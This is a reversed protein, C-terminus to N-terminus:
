SAQEVHFVASGSGFLSQRDQNLRFVLLPLPVPLSTHTQMGLDIVPPSNRQQLACLQPFHPNPNTVISSPLFFMDKQTIAPEESFVELRVDGTRPLAKVSETADAVMARYTALVRTRAESLKQLEGSMDRNRWNGEVRVNYKHQAARLAQHAKQIKQNYHHIKHDGALLKRRRAAVKRQLNRFANDSIHSGRYGPFIGYNEQVRMTRQKFSDFALGKQVGGLLTLHVGERNVDRHVAEILNTTSDGAQWVALPIKSKAHCIGAWAFRCTHKDRVWDQGAKGGLTKIQRLTGEWNPHSLCWLQRMLVKVTEPVTSSRINRLYHNSCLRFIRELHEYPGLTQVTRWPEHLDARIPMAAAVAQLWLGLGKAQGCHQDAAWQLIGTHDHPHQAHLHRIKLCRGTDQEVISAILEFILKHVEACQSNVFVRCFSWVRKFSIDTQVFRGSTHLRESAAPSMCVVIRLDDSTCLVTDDEEHHQLTRADISVMKRIYQEGFSLNLAQLRQLELVANWGTGQPYYINKVYDIIVAVHDRNALSVHLDSLTPNQNDPFRDRLYRLLIPHRLLRRPTLDALDFGLSEILRHLTNRVGVPTRTPLPIPHPHAGSCLLLVYPCGSRYEEMPEIVTFKASCALKKLPLQGLYAGTGRHLRAEADFHNAVTTCAICPGCGSLAYLLEMAMAAQTNGSFVTTLYNVDYLGANTGMVSDCFHGPDRSTYYECRLMKKADDYVIKGSCSDRERGRRMKVRYEEEVRRAEMEDADEGDENAVTTLEVPPHSCGLRLLSSTYATTREVLEGFLSGRQKCTEADNALRARVDELTARTHPAEQATPIGFSCVKVSQCTTQTVRCPVRKGQMDVMIEFDDEWQGM